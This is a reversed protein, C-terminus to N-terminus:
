KMEFAKVYCDQMHLAELGLLHSGAPIEVQATFTTYEEDKPKLIAWGEKITPTVFPKLAGGQPAITALPKGDLLLRFAPAPRENQIIQTRLKVISEWSSQALPEDDFYKAAASITVTYTKAAPFNVEGQVLDAWRFDVVTGPTFNVMRAEGDEDRLYWYLNQLPLPGDATPPTSWTLLRTGRMVSYVEEPQKGLTAAILDCTFREKGTADLVTLLGDASGAAFGGDPLAFLRPYLGTKVSAIVPQQGAVPMVAVTGEMGCFAVAQGNRSLAADTLYQTDLPLTRVSNDARSYVQVAHAGVERTFALLANGQADQRLEHKVQWPKNYPKEAALAFGNIEAGTVRDTVIVRKVVEAGQVKEIVMNTAFRAETGSPGPLAGDYRTSEGQPSIRYIAKSTGLDNKVVEDSEVLVDDTGPMIAKFTGLARWRPTGDASWAAVYSPTATVIISTGCAVTPASSIAPLTTVKKGDNDVIAVMNGYRGLTVVLKDGLPQVGTVAVLSFRDAAPTADLPTAGRETLKGAVEPMPPNLPLGRGCMVRTRATRVGDTVADTAPLNLLANLGAEVGALDNGLVAITDAHLGLAWPLHQVLATGPTETTRDTWLLGSDKVGALVPNTGPTGLLLIHKGYRFETMASGYFNGNVHDVGNQFRVNGIADGGDAKDNIAQQEASVAYALHYDVRPPNEWLRAKVGQATLGDVARVALPHMEPSFVPVVVEPKSALFQRIAQPDRVVANAQLTAAPAKGTKVSVPLRMGQGDLLQRVQLSYTGAADFFGTPVTEQLQGLEDTARYLTCRATGDPALWRIEVPVVAPLAEGGADLAQYVLGVEDGGTITQVASLKGAGVATPYIAYLRGPVGTMDCSITRAGGKRVPSVQTTTFLDYVATQATSTPSLLLETQMPMWSGIAGIGHGVFLRQYATSRQQAPTFLRSFDLMSDNVVSVFQADGGSLTSVAVDPDTADLPLLHITGQLLARLQPCREKALRRMDGVTADQRNFATAMNYPHGLDFFPMDLAASRELYPWDVSSATDAVVRGGRTAFKQLAQAADAPLPESQRPVVIAEIGRPVGDRELMEETILQPPLGVHSLLYLVKVMGDVYSQAYPTIACQRKSYLLGLRPTQRAQAFLGGFREMLKGNLAIEQNRPSNERVAAPGVAALNAGMEFAYGTGQAGRGALLLANRFHSGNQWGFVTDVWLPQNPARNANLLTAALVTEYIHEPAGGQDDWVAVYRFNLPEYAAAHYGGDRPRSHNITNSTSYTLSPDLLRLTETYTLYRQKHLTMLYGYWAYAREKLKELQAPDMRPSRAAIETAWRRTPLDIYNMGEPVRTAAALRLTEESSLPELGTQKRYNDYLAQEKTKMYQRLGARAADNGWGWYSVLHEYHGLFGQNDYDFLQGAFAPYRMLVANGLLMRRLYEGDTQANSHPPNFSFPRTADQTWYLLQQDSFRDFTQNLQAAPTLARPGTVFDNMFSVMGTQRALAANPALTQHSEDIIMGPSSVTAERITFTTTLAQEGCKAIATYNGDGLRDTPLLVHLYATGDRPTLTGTYVPVAPAIGGQLSLNVRTSAPTPLTLSLPIAEGRWYVRRGAAAAFEATPPAAGDAAAVTGLYIGIVPLALTLLLLTRRKVNLRIM